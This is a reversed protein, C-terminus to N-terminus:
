YKNKSTKENLDIQIGALDLYDEENNDLNMKITTEEQIEFDPFRLTKRRDQIEELNETGDIGLLSNLNISNSM